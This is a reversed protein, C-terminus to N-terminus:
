YSFTRTLTFDIKNAISKLEYFEQQLLFLEANDSAVKMRETLMKLQKGILRSKLTLVTAVTLFSLQDDETKVYIKNRKWNDSLQHQSSVLEIAVAAFKPRQHHIFYVDDPQLDEEIARVYEAMMENYIDKEFKIQENQLDGIIYEAV